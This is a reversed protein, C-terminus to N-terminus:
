VITPANNPVITTPMTNPYAMLTEDLWPKATVDLFAYGLVMGVVITGLLACVM